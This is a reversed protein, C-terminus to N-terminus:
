DNNEFLAYDEEAGNEADTLPFCASLEDWMQEEAKMTEDIIYLALGKM